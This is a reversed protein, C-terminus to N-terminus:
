SVMHIMKKLVIQQGLQRSLDKSNVFMLRRKLGPGLANAFSQLFTFTEKVETRTLREINAEM